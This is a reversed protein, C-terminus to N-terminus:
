AGKMMKREFDNELVEGEGDGCKRMMEGVNGEVEDERWGESFYRLLGREGFFRL